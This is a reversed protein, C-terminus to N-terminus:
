PNVNEILYCNNLNLVPAAPGGAVNDLREWAISPSASLPNLISMKKYRYYSNNTNYNASPVWIINGVKIKVPLDEVAGSINRPLGQWTWSGSENWVGGPFVMSTLPGGWFTPTTSEFNILYGLRPRVLSDVYNPNYNGYVSHTGEWYYVLDFASTSYHPLQKYFTVRNNQALRGIDTLTNVNQNFYIFELQGPFSQVRRDVGYKSDLTYNVGNRNEIARYDIRSGTFSSVSSDTYSLTSVVSNGGPNPPTLSNVLASYVGGDVSKQISYTSGVRAKILLEINNNPLPKSKLFNNYTTTLDSLMHSSFYNTVAGDGNDYVLRLKNQNFSIGELNGPIPLGNVVPRDFLIQAVRSDFGSGPNSTQFVRFAGNTPDSASIYMQDNADFTLDRINCGGLDLLVPDGFQASLNTPASTAATLESINLVPIVLAHTRIENRKPSILPTRFGIYAVGKSDIAMAEINFGGISENSPPPTSQPGPISADPDYQTSAFLGLYNPGYGHLGRKDWRVLDDLLRNYSGRLQLSSSGSVTASYILNRRPQYVGSSNRAHSTIWYTTNRFIAGAEIDTLSAKSGALALTSTSQTPLSPNQSAGSNPYIHIIPEEDNAVAFFNNNLHVIASAERADTTGSFFEVTQASLPSKVVLLLLPIYTKYNMKTNKNLTVGL